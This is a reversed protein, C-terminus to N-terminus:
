SDLTYKKPFLGTNTEDVNEYMYVFQDKILM